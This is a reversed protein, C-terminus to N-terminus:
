CHFYECKKVNNITCNQEEIKRYLISANYKQTKEIKTETFLAGSSGNLM